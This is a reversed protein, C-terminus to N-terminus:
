AETAPTVTGDEAVTVNTGSLDQETGGRVNSMHASTNAYSAVYSDATHAAKTVNGFGYQHGQAFADPGMGLFVFQWNYEDTQRKIMEQLTQLTFEHSSNEMGDTQAVFFVHEPREDESLLALREGTETIARGLADNLATNGRALLKYNPADNLNGDHVVHYWPAMQQESLVSHIPADFEVLYLTATGPVDQQEQIFRNIAGQADSAVSSMSGSRDCVM